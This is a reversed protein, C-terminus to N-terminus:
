ARTLTATYVPLALGSERFGASKYLLQSRQNSLQTNLAVTNYGEEWAHNIAEFLLQRGIGTRQAAPHVALRALHAENRGTHLLASYGVITKGLYAMQVRGRVMMELIDTPGFHWLPEFATADLAALTDIDARLAPEIHAPAPLAVLSQAIERLYALRDLRFFVVTDHLVFSASTLMRQMWGETCYVSVLLPDLDPPLLARLRGVLQPLADSLWPGHRLALARIQARHPADPPLSAPRREPDVVLVGWPHEPSGGLVTLGKAVAGPLDEDAINNFVFRGSQLLRRLAPLQDLTAAFAASDAAM